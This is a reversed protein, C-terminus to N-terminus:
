FEGQTYTVSGRWLGDSGEDYWFEGVDFIIYRLDYWCEKM